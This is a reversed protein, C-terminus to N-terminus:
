EEVFVCNSKSCIDELGDPFEAGTGKSPGVSMLGPGPRDAPVDLTLGPEAGRGYPSSFVNMWAGWQSLLTDIPIYVAGIRIGSISISGVHMGVAKVGASTAQWVPGGSDGGSSWYNTVFARVGKWSTTGTIRGETWGTTKGMKGVLVGSYQSSTPMTGTVRGTGGPGPRAGTRPDVVIQYPIVNSYYSFFMSDGNPSSKKAAITGFASGTGYVTSGVGGGCHAASLIFWGSYGSVIWSATCSGPNYGPSNFYIPDGVLYGYTARAGKASGADESPEQAFVDGAQSHYEQGTGNAVAPAGSTAM